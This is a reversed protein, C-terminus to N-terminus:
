TLLPIGSIEGIYIYISTEYGFLCFGIFFYGITFLEFTPVLACYIISITM